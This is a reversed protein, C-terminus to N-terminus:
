GILDYQNFMPTAVAVIIFGVVLGLIVIMLPELLSVMKTLASQADEDYFNATKELISDLAGSEEGIYVMSTFMTPFTEANMLARSFTVGQKIDDVAISLKHEIHKNGIVASAIKIAEIIPVGGSYLSAVTRSFRATIITILLGGFVPIKIKMHDFMLRYKDIKLLFSTGIVILALVIAVIYWYNAMVNSIGMLIRTAMPLNAESGFMDLFTPVVKIMLIAVVLVTVVLLTIPYIMASTVKGRLTKEKEYHTSMSLMVEDLTGSAEGSEVMSILLSPFTKGLSKMADSLSNGKKISEYLELLAHKLRKNEAQRYLIDLCKVVTLGANMMTAFQRCFISIYKLGLKSGGSGPPAIDRSSVQSSSEQVSICYLNQERLKSYFENLNEARLSGNKTKGTSDKAKFDYKVV